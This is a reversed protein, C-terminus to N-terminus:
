ITPSPLSPDHFSVSAIGKIIREASPRLTSGASFSTHRGKNCSTSGGEVERQDYWCVQEQSGTSKRAVVM